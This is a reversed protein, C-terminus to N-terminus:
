VDPNENHLSTVMSRDIGALLDNSYGRHGAPIDTKCLTLEELIRLSASGNKFVSSRGSNARM